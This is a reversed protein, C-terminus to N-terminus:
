YFVSKKRPIEWLWRNIKKLRKEYITM